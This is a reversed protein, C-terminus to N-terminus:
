GSRHDGRQTQPVRAALPVSAPWGAAVGIGTKPSSIPSGPLPADLGARTTNLREALAPAKEALRTVDDRLTLAQTWLVSRGQELLEVALDLRDDAIACAAADAALGSWHTLQQERTARDLGHWAVEPLLAVAQAYGDAGERTRRVGAATVGLYAILVIKDAVQQSL